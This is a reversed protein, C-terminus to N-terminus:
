QLNTPYPKFPLRVVVLGPMQTILLSPQVQGQFGKVVASGAGFHQEDVVAAVLHEAAEGALCHQIVPDHQFDLVQGGKSFM